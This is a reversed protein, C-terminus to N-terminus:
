SEEVYSEEVYSVTVPTMGTFRGRKSADYWFLRAREPRPSEAMRTGAYRRHSGSYGIGFKEVRRVNVINASGLLKTAERYEVSGQAIKKNEYWEYCRGEDANYKFYQEAVPHNNELEVVRGKNKGLVWLHMHANDRYVTNDM